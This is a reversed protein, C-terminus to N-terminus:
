DLAHLIESALPDQFGSIDPFVHVFDVFRDAPMWRRGDVVPIHHRAAIQGILEAARESFGPRHYRGDVDDDLLPNEPMLLVFSPWPEGALRELLRDLVVVGPSELTLSEPPPVPESFGFRGAHGGLYTVFGNLTPARQWREFAADETAGRQPGNAFAFYEMASAFHDPFESDSPTPFLRDEIRARVFRRFRYLPWVTRVWRDVRAAPSTPPIPGDRWGIDLLEGTPNLLEGWTTPVLDAGSIALVVLSPRLRDLHRSIVEQDGVRAGFIALNDVRADLDPALRHLAREVYADRAAFWVRSNGLIAIRVAAPRLPQYIKRAVDYTQWIYVREISSRFWTDTKGWLLGTRTVAGDILALFAVALLWTLPAAAAPAPSRV